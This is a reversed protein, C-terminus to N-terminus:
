SLLQEFDEKSIRLGSNGWVGMVAWSDDKFVAVKVPRPGGVYRLYITHAHSNYEMKFQSKNLTARELAGWMRGGARSLPKFSESPTVSCIVARGNIVLNKDSISKLIGKQVHWADSRASGEILYIIAKSFFPRSLDRKELHEKTKTTDILDKVQASLPECITTLLQIVEGLLISSDDPAEWNTVWGKLELTPHGEEPMGRSFISGGTSSTPGLSLAKGYKADLKAELSACCREAVTTAITTVRAEFKDLCRDAAKTSARTCLEEIQEASLTAAM